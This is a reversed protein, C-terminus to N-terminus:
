QEQEGRPAAFRSMDILPNKTVRITNLLTGIVAATDMFLVFWISSFGIMSLFVLLAKVAFMFIANSKAVQCMRRSVQIGFPLANANEPAVTVDAFKAKKNLRVDVDADSHCEIGNAYLFMVHNRDGQNLDGVHKLKRETDCEGYVDDFGLDEAVRRSEGEADETLLVLERMGTERVGDLLETGIENAPLSVILYGVYRGSVILFYKEGEEEVQPVQVGRSALYDAKALIVPSGGIKLEVGCGPVDAFDSIVDLRYDNEGLTPIARAFSQESYYVAHALFSMFTNQDLIDSHAAELVPADSSFINAKDIALVNVEATKEMTKGDRFLVGHRAGYCLGVLATFPMAAVVSAPIATMMIMLARHICVAFSYDGLRRLIIIYILAFVMTIKLIIDASRYAGSEMNLRLAGEKGFLETARDVTEEDQGNLLQMASGRTRKQVYDLLPLSLQYLLLMAAGEVPFGVFFSVFAVFLLLIPTAFYNKELVSDFAKLAMDYACLLASLALLIYRVIENKVVFAGLVLLIAALVLRGILILNSSGAPADAAKGAFRARQPRQSM